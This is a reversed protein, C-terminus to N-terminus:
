LLISDGNLKSIIKSVNELLAIRGGFYLIKGFTQIENVGNYVPFSKSAPEDNISHFCM